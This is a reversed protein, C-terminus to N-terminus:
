KSKTPKYNPQNKKAILRKKKETLRIPKGDPSGRDYPHRKLPVKKM